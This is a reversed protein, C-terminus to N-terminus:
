EQNNDTATKAGQYADVFITKSSPGFKEYDRVFVDAQHSLMDSCLLYDLAAENKPNSTLLQAMIVYCDDGMRINDSTNVFQQKRTIEAKVDPTMTEPTHDIAWQKYVITQHLLRLYKMAAPIDGNILNAEALRKTMRANRGNPSFTNALLAARETYTMDGLLFYLDNIMGITYRPTEENIKIFTGLVPNNITPLCSPLMGLQELSLCYYFTMEDIKEGKFNEYMNKVKQYHGLYYENDLAYCYELRKETEYDISKQPSPYTLADSFTLYYHSALINIFILTCVSLAASAGLHRAEERKGNVTLSKLVELVLLAIVGYGFTWYALASVILIGGFSIASAGARKNYLLTRSIDFLYWVACGGTLAIISNLNSTDGLAMRAELTIVILSLIFATWETYKRGKTPLCRKLSYFMFHGLTLCVVALIAPGAYLYYYFQTLFDGALCALWAPKNFYTQIYDWSLLFLQNQEQHFFHYHFNAHFFVYCGMGWLILLALRAIFSLSITPKNFNM